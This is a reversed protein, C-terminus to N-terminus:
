YSYSYFCPYNTTYVPIYIHHQNNTHTIESHNYAMDNGRDDGSGGTYPQTNTNTYTHRQQLGGNFNIYGITTFTIYKDAGILISLIQITTIIISPTTTTYDTHYNLKKRTGKNVHYQRIHHTPHTAIPSVFYHIYLTYRYNKIKFCIKM